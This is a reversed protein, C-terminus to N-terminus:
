NEDSKKVREACDTGGQAECTALGAERGAKVCNKDTSNTSQICTEVAKKRADLIEWDLKASTWEAEAAPSAFSDPRMWVTVNNPYKQAAGSAADILFGVGGGILINGFTAAVLGEEVTVVAQRYGEKNCVVNMPGDGKRVVVSGPTAGLRWKRGRSDALDCVAGTMMPTDIFVAQELGTTIASCGSLAAALLGLVVAPRVTM